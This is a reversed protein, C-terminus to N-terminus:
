TKSIETPLITIGEKTERKSVAVRLVRFTGKTWSKKAFVLNDISDIKYFCSNLNASTVALMKPVIFVHRKYAPLGKICATKVVVM